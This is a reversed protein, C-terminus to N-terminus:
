PFRGLLPPKCDSLGLMKQFIPQYRDWSGEPAIFVRYHIEEKRNDAVFDAVIWNREIQGPIPSPGTAMVSIYDWSNWVCRHRSRSRVSLQTKSRQLESLLQDTAAELTLRKSSLKFISAVAGLTIAPPNVEGAPNIGEPPAVTITSSGQGYVKWDAPHLIILNLTEYYSGSFQGWWEARRQMQALESDDSSFSKLPGLQPILQAVDKRRNGPDPHTALLEPFKSGSEKRDQERAAFFEALASPDYGADYLIQAGLEDASREDSRSFKLGLLALGVVIGTQAWKGGPFSSPSAADAAAVVRGWRDLNQHRLAVHSIEHALVGALQAESTAALVLGRFVYIPGGRMAFANIEEKDVLTFRYPYRYGPAFQALKQGLRNVYDNLEPDFRVFYQNYKELQKIGEQGLRIDNEPSSPNFAPKFEVRAALPSAAALLLWNLATALCFLPKPLSFSGRRASEENRKPHCPFVWYVLRLIHECTGGSGWRVWFLKLMKEVRM